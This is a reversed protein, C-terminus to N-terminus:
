RIATRWGPGPHWAPAGCDYGCYDEAVYSVAGGAFGRLDAVPVWGREPGVAVNCWKARDLCGYVAVSRQPSIVARVPYGHSPGSRMVVTGATLAVEAAALPYSSMVALAALPLLLRNM